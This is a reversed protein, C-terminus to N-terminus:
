KMKQSPTGILISLLANFEEVIVTNGLQFTKQIAIKEFM